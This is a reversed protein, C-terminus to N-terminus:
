SRKNRGTWISKLEERFEESIAVNFIFLVLFAVVSRIITESIGIDGYENAGVTGALFLFGLLNVIATVITKM